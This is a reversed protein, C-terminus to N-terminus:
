PMERLQSLSKIRTAPKRGSRMEEHPGCVMAYDCWACEGKAPTAPFFGEGLAVGVFEFGDTGMPNPYSDNMNPGQYTHITGM